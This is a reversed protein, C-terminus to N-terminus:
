PGDRLARYREMFARCKRGDWRVMADSADSMLSSSVVVGDAEALADHLNTADVGGGIYLPRDVGSARVARVSDVSSALSSGTLILADASAGAAWGAALEIPVNPVPVGTRDHVDAFVTVGEPKRREVYARADASLGEKYGDVTQMGGVFIKLRVFDAETAQAIALCAHADHAQLIIGLQVDPFERRIAAALITMTAITEPRAPGLHRTQDQLMVAPVGAEAFVGVNRLTYEELQRISWAVSADRPLHMAAIVAAIKQKAGSASM